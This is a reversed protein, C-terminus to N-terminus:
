NPRGVPLLDDGWEGGTGASEAELQAAEKKGLRKPSRAPPPRDDAFKAALEAVDHREIEKGLEKLASTDRDVVAKHYLAAWRSARLQITAVRRQQLQQLYHKRLTPQSVGLAGAIESNKCRFALMMMVKNRNEDTAVHEPRGSKDRPEPLPWGFLSLNETM